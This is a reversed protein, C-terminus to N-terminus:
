FSNLAKNPQQFNNKNFKFKLVIEHSGNHYEAFDNTAFDYSYGVFLGQLIQFGAQGIMAEDYRYGLGILVGSIILFDTRNFFYGIFVGSIIAAIGIIRVKNM